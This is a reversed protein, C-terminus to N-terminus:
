GLSYERNVQALTPFNDLQVHTGISVTSAYRGSIMAILEAPIDIVIAGMLSRPLEDVFISGVM